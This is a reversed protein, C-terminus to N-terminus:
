EPNSDELHQRYRVRFTHPAEDRMESLGRKIAADAVNHMSGNRAATFARLMDAAETTVSLTIQETQIDM